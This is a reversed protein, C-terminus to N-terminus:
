VYGDVSRAYGTRLQLMSSVHHIWPYIQGSSHSVTVVESQGEQSMM